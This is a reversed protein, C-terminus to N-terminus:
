HSILRYFCYIVNMISKVLQHLLQLFLLVFYHLSALIMKLIQLLVQVYLIFFHIIANFHQPFMVFFDEACLVLPFGEFEKLLVFLYLFNTFLDEVVVRRGNRQFFQCTRGIRNIALDSFKWLSNNRQLYLVFLAIQAMHVNFITTWFWLYFFVFTVFSDPSVNTTQVRGSILLFFFVCFRLFVFFPHFIISENVITIFFSIWGFHRGVNTVKDVLFPVLTSTSGIRIHKLHSCIQLTGLHYRLHWFRYNRILEPLLFFVCCDYFLSYFPLCHMRVESRLLCPLWILFLPIM